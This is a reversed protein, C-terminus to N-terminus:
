CCKTCARKGLEALTSAPEETSFWETRKSSKACEESLHWKTARGFWFNLTAPQTATETSMGYAYCRELGM